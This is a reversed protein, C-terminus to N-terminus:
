APETNRVTMAALGERLATITAERARLEQLLHQILRMDESAHEANCVAEDAELRLNMAGPLLESIRRNAAGAPGRRFVMVADNWINSARRGIFSEVLTLDYGQRRAWGQLALGADPYFRWCDLPHRHVWGNSPTNVYVHGGSKTVRVIEVFSLWFMPDHEFCSTSVVADFAGDAFPLAYPDDLVRDVGPGAAMDVGLYSASPPACNRLTGNIDLAGVDLIKAGPKTVYGEFFARGFAFATDHM